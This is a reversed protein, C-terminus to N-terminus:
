DSGFFETARPVIHREASQFYVRDYTDLADHFFAPDITGIHVFQVDSFYQSLTPLLYHEIFSDYIILTTGSILPQSISRNTVSKRGYKTAQNISLYSPHQVLTGEDLLEVIEIGPRHIQLRTNTEQIEWDGIVKAIDPIETRTWEEAEERDDWLSEDIADIMTRALILAGRSNHHSGAPEYILEPSTSKAEFAKAEFMPTWVDILYPTNPRAFYSQLDERQQKSTAFLARSSELLQEPYIVVKNPAVVIYLDAKFTNNAIFSEISDISRHTEDLTGLDQALSNRFFLWGPQGLEVKSSIRDGSRPPFVFRNATVMQKRFPVRDEFASSIQAWWHADILNGASDIEPFANPTRNEMDHVFGLSQTLQFPAILIPLCIAALCIIGSITRSRNM